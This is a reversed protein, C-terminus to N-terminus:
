ERKALTMMSYFLNPPPSFFYLAIRSFKGKRKKSDKVIGQFIIEYMKFLIVGKINRVRWCELINQVERSCLYLEGLRYILVLSRSRLLGPGTRM